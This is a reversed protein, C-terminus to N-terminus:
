SNSIPTLAKNKKRLSPPPSKLWSMNSTSYFSKYIDCHVGACYCYYNFFLFEALGTFTKQARVESAGTAEHNVKQVM